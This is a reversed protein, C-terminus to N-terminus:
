RLTQQFEEIALDVEERMQYIRGLNYRAMTFDSRLAVAKKLLELAEDYHHNEVCDVAKNNLVRAEDVTETHVQGAEANTWFLLVGLLATGVFVFNRIKLMLKVECTNQWFSVCFFDHCSINSSMLSCGREVLDSMLWM